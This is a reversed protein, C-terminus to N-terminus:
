IKIAKLYAIYRDYEALQFDDMKKFMFKTHFVKMGDGSSWGYRLSIVLFKKILSLKYIKCFSYAFRKKGILTIFTVIRLGENTVLWKYESDFTYRIYPGSNDRYYGDRDKFKAQAVLVIHLPEATRDKVLVLSDESATGERFFWESFAWAGNRLGGWRYSLYFYQLRQLFNVPVPNDETGEFKTFWKDKQEKLYWSLGAYNTTMGTTMLYGWFLPNVYLQWKKYGDKILYINDYSDEEIRDTAYKLIQRRFIFAFPYLFICLLQSLLGAITIAIYTILIEM